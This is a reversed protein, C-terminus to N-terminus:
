YKGSCIVGPWVVGLPRAKGSCFGPKEFFGPQEVLWAGESTLMGAKM